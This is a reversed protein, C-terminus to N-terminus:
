QGIWTFLSDEEDKENEIVLSLFYIEIFRILLKM